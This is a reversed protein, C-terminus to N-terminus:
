HLGLSHESPGDILSSYCSGCVMQNSFLLREFAMESLHYNRTSQADFYPAPCLRKGQRKQDRLWLQSLAEAETVAEKEEQSLVIDGWKQAPDPHFTAISQGEASLEFPEQCLRCVPQNLESM